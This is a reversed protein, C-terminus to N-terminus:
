GCTTPFLRPCPKECEKPVHFTEASQKRVKYDIFTLNHLVTTAGGNRDFSFTESYRCPTQQGSADTAFLWCDAEAEAGPVCWAECVRAKKGKGVTENGVFTRNPNASMWGPTLPSCGEAAGCARCCAAQDNTYSVYMGASNFVLSCSQTTTNDACACFNNMQPTFHDTRWGGQDWAYFWAGESPPQEQGNILFVEDFVADFELPLPSPQAQAGASASFAALLLIRIRM